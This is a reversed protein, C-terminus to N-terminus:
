SSMTMHGHMNFIQIEDPGSTGDAHLDLIALRLAVGGPDCAVQGYEGCAAISQRILKTQLLPVRVVKAINCKATETQAKLWTAGCTDPCIQHCM